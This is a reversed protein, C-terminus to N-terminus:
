VNYETRGSEMATLVESRLMEMAFDVREKKTRLSSLEFYARRTMEILQRPTDLFVNVFQDVTKQFDAAPVVRNILGMMYADQASFSWSTLYAELARKSPMTDITEVMVMMPVGGMRIEPFCFEVGERAIAFDCGAIMGMGAKMCDGSIAAVMPTNLQETLASYRNIASAYKEKEGPVTADVRGGTYFYRDNGTVVGVRISDDNIMAQYCDALQEIGEWTLGNKTEPNDITITMVGKEVKTFVQKKMKYRDELNMERSKPM